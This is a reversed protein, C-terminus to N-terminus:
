RQSIPGSAPDACANIRTFAQEFGGHVGGCDEAFAGDAVGAFRGGAGRGSGAAGFPIRIELRLSRAEFDGQGLGAYGTELGILAGWRARAFVGFRADARLSQGGGILQGTESM